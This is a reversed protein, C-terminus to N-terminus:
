LGQNIVDDLSYAVFGIGGRQNVKELFEVQEPSPKKKLMKVEIALFRGQTTCGIIDSIGKEGTALPIYKGTDQKYIGVNRHKFVLHRKLKLYDLISKQIESEKAAGRLPSKKV